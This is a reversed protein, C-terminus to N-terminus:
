REPQAMREDGIWNPRASAVKTTQGRMPAPPWARAPNMSWGGPSLEGRVRNASSVSPAAALTAVLSGTCSVAASWCARPERAGSAGTGASGERTKQGSHAHPRPCDVPLPALVEPTELTLTALRCAVKFAGTARGG